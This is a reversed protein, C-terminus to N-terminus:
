INLHSGQNEWQGAGDFKVFPLQFDSNQTRARGARFGNIKRTDFLHGQHPPMQAPVLRLGDRQHGAQRGVLEVGRLPELSVLGSPANFIAQMQPQVDAVQVVLAPHAQGLGHAHHAQQPAEAVTEENVPAAALFLGLVFGGGVKEGGHIGFMM